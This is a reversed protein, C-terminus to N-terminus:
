VPSVSTLRIICSSIPQSRNRAHNATVLIGMAEAIDIKSSPDDTAVRIASSIWLATAPMAVKLVAAKVAAAAFVPGGFAPRGGRKDLSRMWANSRTYSLFVPDFGPRPDPGNASKTKSTM